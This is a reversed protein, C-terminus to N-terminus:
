KKNTNIIRYIQTNNNNIAVILYNRTGITTMKIEKIQVNGFNLGLELGNTIKNGEQLLYGLNGDLKGQYPPVGFINGAVLVENLGDGNFDDKLFSTIPALQLQEEFPKFIFKGNNNELYGSALNTVTKLKVNNQLEKDIIEDFTKGAFNKYTKFKKVFKDGLVHVLEDKNNVSYYKDNKAFSVLTVWNGNKLIDGVYMKLPFDNSAKFKTNLGWNGLLYDTDGDGDIDFPQIAQWLGSNNKNSISKTIEIFKGKENEFFRPTMWEGVIILDDYGDHNFDTFVADTLMGINQSLTSKSISFKGHGNNLLLYSKPSKGFANAVARSGVFLDLDGDKDIDNVRVFSGNEFYDPLSSEAKVFYNQGDNFYLRDKLVKSKKSFENGGTVVFLDKDGDNDADFFLADIDESNIDKDFVSSEKKHIGLSDLIFFQSNHHTAGGVFLLKSQSQIGNMIDFAPGQTSLKYPLLPNMSFESFRNEVHKITTFSSDIITKFLPKPKKFFLRYDILKDRQSPSLVLNQNTKVNILIQTTNNPWIIRLSDVKKATDFGFYLVPEVSSQFGHTSQLARYQLQGNNYAFVKTGLAFKNKSTTKFSLKLYTKNKSNNKLISPKTNYNNIVLDLDGDNDLDAYTSGSSVTPTKPFWVGSKDEFKLHNTGKFIYNHVAAKPMIELAKEDYLRSTSINRKTAKDTFIKLYDLDNLRRYIGNSVFLDLEGDLNFDALLPTWSWDTAAVGAFLAVDTFYQGQHNIQLMNRSFQPKYGLKERIKHYQADVDTLSSKLYKEQEPMMDLTMIDPFGDHNIDAVDNGMSFRSTKGFHNKLQETFTGNKNNIYYYDDEHFDNSIYLDDWGDNNFDAVAVGLGYSNPGSYIGAQQSVNVFKGNDNRYLRDGNETSIKLRNSAPGFSLASHKGENLLYMDLDGDHDYDFFAVNNAQTKADLNYDASQEKFTNDGQNIFLENHGKFGYIGVVACVYIDLLGDGNVDAMVTGTNWDSKGAVGAKDTIDEFVFNGKNIYLKNPAKNATFYIDPLGDNNIDGVSVGGGDYFYMYDLANLTKSDTLSNEFTINSHESSIPTFLNKESDTKCSAFMLIVLFYVFKNM